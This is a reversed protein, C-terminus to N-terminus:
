LKQPSAGPVWFGVKTRSRSAAPGSGNGLEERRGDCGERGSCQLYFGPKSEAWYSSWEDQIKMLLGRRRKTKQCFSKGSTYHIEQENECIKAMTWKLCSWYITFFFFFCAFSSTKSVIDNCHEGFSSRHTNAACLCRRVSDMWLAPLSWSNVPRM